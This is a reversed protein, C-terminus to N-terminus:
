IRFKGFDDFDIDDDHDIEDDDINDNDSDNYYDNDNFYDYPADDYSLDDYSLDYNKSFKERGYSEDVFSERYLQLLELEEKKRQLEEKKREREREELTMEKIVSPIIDKSFYENMFKKITTNRFFGYYNYNKDYEIGSFIIKKSLAIDTKKDIIWKIPEVEVWYIEDKKLCRGDSLEESYLYCESSFEIRIYKKGNYEYEDFAPSPFRDNNFSQTLDITYSKGTKFLNGLIYDYELAESQEKSAITQPYEGYEVELVGNSLKNANSCIDKISSYLTYPRAGCRYMDTSGVGEEGRIDVCYPKNNKNSTKTWWHSTNKSTSCGGLLVSFDTTTCELGFKKLVDIKEEGFIQKRALFSFDLM